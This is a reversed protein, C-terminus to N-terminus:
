GRGYGRPGRGYPVWVWQQSTETYGPVWRQEYHAPECSRVHRRVYTCQEAVWVRDYRGPVNTQVTQLEYRGDRSQAHSPRAPPPPPRYSSRGPAPEGVAIPTARHEPGWSGDAATAAVPIFVLASLALTFIGNKLAM